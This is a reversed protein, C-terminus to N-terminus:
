FFFFAIQLIYECLLPKPEIDIWNHPKKSLEKGIRFVQSMRFFFFFVM